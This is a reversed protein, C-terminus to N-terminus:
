HQSSCHFLAVLSTAVLTGAVLPVNRVAPSAPLVPCTLSYCLWHSQALMLVFPCVPQHDPHASLAATSCLRQADKWPHGQWLLLEGAMPLM